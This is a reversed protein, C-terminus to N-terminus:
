EAKRKGIKGHPNLTKGKEVLNIEVHIVHIILGILISLVGLVLSEEGLATLVVISLLISLIQLAPYFPAKFSGIFGRRRSIIVAMATTLYSFVTGFNSVLGIAEVNGLSLSSIM